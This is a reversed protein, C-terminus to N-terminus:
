DRKTLSTYVLIKKVGSSSVFEQYRMKNDIEEWSPRLDTKM